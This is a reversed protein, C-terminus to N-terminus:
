VLTKHVLGPPYQFRPILLSSQMLVHVNVVCACISLIINTHANVHINTYMILHAHM